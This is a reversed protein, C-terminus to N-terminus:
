AMGGLSKSITLPDVYSPTHELLASVAAKTSASQQTMETAGSLDGCANHIANVQEEGGKAAAVNDEDVQDSNKAKRRRLGPREYKDPWKHRVRDRLDRPMRRSLGLEQDDRIRAWANSHREFGKLLACDEEATFTTRPRRTYAESDQEVEQTEAAASKAAQFSPRSDRRAALDYPPETVPSGSDQDSLEQQAKGRSSSAQGAKGVKSKKERLLCVRHHDKLDVATRHHFHLEPDALIRKWKGIGHRRIGEQLATSEQETWKTRSLAARSRKSPAQTKDTPATEEVSSSPAAASTPPDEHRVANSDEKSRLHLRSLSEFAPREVPGTQVVPQQKKEEVNATKQVRRPQLQWTPSPRDTIMPFLGATPPPEHLGQLLPPIAPRQPEYPKSLLPQPLHLSGAWETQHDLRRRKRPSGEGPKEHTGSPRPKANEENLVKALTATSRSIPQSQGKDATLTADKLDHHQATTPTTIDVADLNDGTYLKSPSTDQLPPLDLSFLDEWTNGLLTDEDLIPALRFDDLLSAM